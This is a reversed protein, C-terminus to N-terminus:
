NSGEKTPKDHLARLTSLLYAPMFHLAFTNGLVLSSAFILQPPPALLGIQTITSLAINLLWSFLLCGYLAADLAPQNLADFLAVRALFLLAILVTVAGVAVAIESYRVFWPPSVSPVLSPHEELFCGVTLQMLTGLLYLFGYYYSRGKYVRVTNREDYTGNLQALIDSAFFVQGGQLSACYAAAGLMGMVSVSTSPVTGHNADYGPLAFTFVIFLPWGLLIDLGIAVKVTLLSTKNAVLLSLSYAVGFLGFVVEGLSTLLLVIPPFQDAAGRWEGGFRETGVVSTLRIVGENLVLLSFVLHLGFSRITQMPLENMM